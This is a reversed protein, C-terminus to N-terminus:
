EFKYPKQGLATNCFLSIVINKMANDRVKNRLGSELDAVKLNSKGYFDYVRNKM